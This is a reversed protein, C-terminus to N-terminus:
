GKGKLLLHCIKGLSIAFMFLTHPCPENPKRLKTVWREDKSLFARRHQKSIYELRAKIQQM